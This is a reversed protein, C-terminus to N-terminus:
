VLLLKSSDHSVELAAEKEHLATQVNQLADQGRTEAEQVAASVLRRGEALAKQEAASAQAAADRRSAEVAEQLRVVDERLAHERDEALAIKKEAEKFRFPAVCQDDANDLKNEREVSM